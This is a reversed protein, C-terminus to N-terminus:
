AAEGLKRGTLRIRMPNEGIIEPMDDVWVRVLTRHEEWMFDAKARGSTYFVEGPFDTVPMSPKRYTVCFVNAGAKRLVDIVATWTEPCSTFTDDYDVAITFPRAAGKIESV